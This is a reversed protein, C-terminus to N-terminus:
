GTRGSARKFAATSTSVSRSARVKSAPLSIKSATASFSSPQTNCKTTEKKATTTPQDTLLKLVQVAPNDPEWPLSDDLPPLGHRVNWRMLIEDIWGLVAYKTDTSANLLWQQSRVWDAMQQPSPTKRLMRFLGIIEPGYLGQAMGRRIMAKWKKYLSLLERKEMVAKEVPSPVMPQRNAREIKKRTHKTASSVLDEFPNDSM